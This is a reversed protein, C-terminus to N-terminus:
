QKKVWKDLMNNKARIDSPCLFVRGCSPCHLDEVLCTRWCANCRVLPTFTTGQTIRVLMAKNKIAQSSFVCPKKVRILKLIGLSNSTLKSFLATVGVAKTNTTDPLGM